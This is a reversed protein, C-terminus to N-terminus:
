GQLIKVKDNFADLATKESIYDGVKKKILGGNEVRVFAIHYLYVKNADGLDKYAVIVINGDKSKEAKLLGAIKGDSTKYFTETKLIRYYNDIDENKSMCVESSKDDFPLPLEKYIEKKPTTRKTEAHTKTEPRHEVKQSDSSKERKEALKSEYLLRKQKNCIIIDTSEDLLHEKLFICNGQFLKYKCQTRCEVYKKIEYNPSSKYELLKQTIHKVLTYNYKWELELDNLIIDKEIPLNDINISLENCEKKSTIQKLSEKNGIFFVYPTESGKSIAKVEALLGNESIKVSVNHLTIKREITNSNEPILLEHGNSFLSSVLTVRKCMEDAILQEYNTNNIWERNESSTLIFSELNELKQERVDIELCTIGSEVIKTKKKDDVEHTNRIEIIWRKGDETEAVIDPQLDKREIRKELEVKVFSIKRAKVINFAPLMIAKKEQIIQEAMLHIATMYAGHCDSDKKHAFHPQRGGEKGLKAVLHEKCKPCCCNCKLGREVANISVMREHEDLAYTLKPEKRDNYM